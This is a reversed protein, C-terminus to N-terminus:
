VFKHWSDYSQDYTWGNAELVEADDNEMSAPNPGSAWVEDHEASFSGTPNYKSLITLGALIRKM